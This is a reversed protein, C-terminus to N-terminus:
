HWKSKRSGCFLIEQRGRGSKGSLLYKKNWKIAGSNFVANIGFREMLYPNTEQNLDYRWFLPTHKATLVPYEFREYIGNDSEKKRNKRKILEKHSRKLENLRKEFNKKM